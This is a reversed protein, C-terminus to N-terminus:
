PRSLHQDIGPWIQGVDASLAGFKTSISVLRASIDACMQDLGPLDPRVQGFDVSFRDDDLFQNLKTSNPCLKALKPRSRSLM